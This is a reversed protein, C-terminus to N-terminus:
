YPTGREGMVRDEMWTGFVEGDLIVISAFDDLIAENRDFINGCLNHDGVCECFRERSRLM